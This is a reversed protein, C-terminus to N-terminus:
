QLRVAPGAVVVERRFNGRPHTGGADVIALDPRDEDVVRSRRGGPASPPRVIRGPASPTRCSALVNAVGGVWSGPRGWLGRPPAGPMMCPVSTPSRFAPM